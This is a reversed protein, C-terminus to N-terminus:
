TGGARRATDRLDNLLWIYLLLGVAGAGMWTMGLVGAEGFLGGQEHPPPPAEVGVPQDSPASMQPKSAAIKAQVETVVSAILCVLAAGHLCIALTARGSLEPSCFRALSRAYWCFFLATLQVVGLGLAGSITTAVDPPATALRLVSMPVVLLALVSVLLSLALPLKGGAARPTAFCRVKGVVDLVLGVWSGVGIVFVMAATSVPLEVTPTVDVTALPKVLHVILGVAVGLLLSCFQICLSTFILRVGKTTKLLGAHM